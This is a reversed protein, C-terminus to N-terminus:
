LVGIYLIAELSFIVILLIIGASSFFCCFKEKLTLIGKNEKLKFINKNNKLLYIFSFIGLMCFLAIIFYYVSLYIRDNINGNTGLVDMIVAYFNNIFHVIVSPIISNTKCDIYGFILGLIFAFIIQTTNGHMAGFIVSSAIIAFSDGYKRLVGMFIGRFAFEEAFAPVIAVAIIYLIIESLSKAPISQSATNELGFISLNNGLLTAATNAVMSVAMGIFIFPFLINKKVKDTKITLTIKNKSLLLFFLGSIFASSVSSFILEVYLANMDVGSSLQKPLYLIEVLLQTAFMIMFYAFVFLGLGNSTKTLKRKESHKIFMAEYINNPVYNIM